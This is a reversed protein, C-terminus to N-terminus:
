ISPKSVCELKCGLIRSGHVMELTCKREEEKCIGQTLTHLIMFMNKQEFTATFINGLVCCSIQRTSYCTRFVEFWAGILSDM